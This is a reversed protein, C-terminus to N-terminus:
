IVTHLTKLIILIIILFIEKSIELWIIIGKVM